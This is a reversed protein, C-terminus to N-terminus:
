TGSIEDPLVFELRGIRRILLLQLGVPRTVVVIDQEITQCPEVGVALGRRLDALMEGIYQYVLELIDIGHLITEHFEQRTVAPPQEHNTIRILRNIAETASIRLIEPRQGLLERLCAQQLERGIVARRLGNYSRSVRDNRVVAVPLGQVQLSRPVDARRQPQIRGRAFHSLANGYHPLDAAHYAPGIHYLRVLM